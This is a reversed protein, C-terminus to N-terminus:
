QSERMSVLELKASDTMTEHHSIYIAYRFQFAEVAKGSGLQEQVQNATIKKSIFHDFYTKESWDKTDVKVEPFAKRLARGLLLFELKKFYKLSPVYKHQLLDKAITSYGFVERLKEANILLYREEEATAIKDDVLRLYRKDHADNPASLASDSELTKTAKVNEVSSAIVPFASLVVLFVWLLFRM